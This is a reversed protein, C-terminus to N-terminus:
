FSLYYHSVTEEFAINIDEDFIPKNNAAPDFFLYRTSITPVNM